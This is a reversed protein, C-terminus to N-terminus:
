FMIQRSVYSQATFLTRNSGWRVSLSLCSKLMSQMRNKGTVNRWIWWMHPFHHQSTNQEQKDHLCCARESGVKGRVVCMYGVNFLPIRVEASVEAEKVSLSFILVVPLRTGRLPAQKGRVLTSQNTFLLEEKNKILCLHLKIHTYYIYSYIYLYLYYGLCLM